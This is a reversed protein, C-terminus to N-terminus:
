HKKDDNAYKYVYEFLSIVRGRYFVLNEPGACPLPDKNVLSFFYRITNKIKNM